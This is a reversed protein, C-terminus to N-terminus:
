DSSFLSKSTRVPIKSYFSDITVTREGQHGFSQGSYSITDKMPVFCWTGWGSVAVAEAVMNSCLSIRRERKGMLFLVSSCETMGGNTANRDKNRQLNCQQQTESNSSSSRQPPHKAAQLAKNLPGQDSFLCCLCVNGEVGETILFSLM